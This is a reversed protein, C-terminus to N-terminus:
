ALNCCFNRILTTMIKHTEVCHLESFITHTKHKHKYKASNSDYAGNITYKMAAYALGITVCAGYQSIRHPGSYDGKGFTPLTLAGASCTHGVRQVQQHWKM